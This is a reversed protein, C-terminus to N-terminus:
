VVRKVAQRKTKAALKSAGRVIRTQLNLAIKAQGRRKRRRNSM